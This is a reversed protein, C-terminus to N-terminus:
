VQHNCRDVSGTADVFIVDGSQPVLAHTRKMLEDCVAVVITKDELQRISAIKEGAKENIREILEVAKLFADPGNISGFRKCFLTYMNFVTRSDPNVSRKASIKFFEVEGLIAKMEAIYALRAKAPSFADSFLQFYRKKTEESVDLFNWADTSSVKHNHEYKIRVSLNFCEGNGAEHGHICPLLKYTFFAGCETGKGKQREAGKLRGQGSRKEVDDDKASRQDRIRRGCNFRNSSYGMRVKEKRPAKM